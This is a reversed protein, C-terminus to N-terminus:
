KLKVFKLSRIEKESYMRLIYMGPLYDHINITMRSLDSNRNYLMRGEIDFVSVDSVNGPVSINLLDDTIYIITKDNNEFPWTGDFIFIDSTDYVCYNNVIVYYFGNGFPFLFNTDAGAIIGQQDYWQNGTMTSSFLTDNSLSIAPEADDIFTVKLTDYCTMSDVDTVHWLLRFLGESSVTYVANPDEYDSLAGGDLLTWYTNTDGPQEYAQLQFNYGCVATDAGADSVCLYCPPPASITKSIGYFGCNSYEAKVVHSLGDAPISDISYNLFTSYPPYFIDTLGSVTDIVTISDDQSLSNCTIVGSISFTNTLPDCASSSCTINQFYCCFCSCYTEASGPQGYNTQQMYLEGVSNESNLVVFIYIQFPQTNNIHIYETDSPSFSCDVLNGSPYFTSDDVNSPCQFSYCNATLQNVCPQTPSTFPGWAAFDIDSSPNSTLRIRFDGPECVLLYYWLPNPQNQLCGYNPGSQAVINVPMPVHYTVGTCFPEAVTCTTNSQSYLLSSTFVILLIIILKNM